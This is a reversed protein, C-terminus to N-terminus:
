ETERDAGSSTEVIGDSHVRHAVYLLDDADAHVNLIRQVEPHEVPVLEALMVVRSISCTIFIKCTIIKKSNRVGSM